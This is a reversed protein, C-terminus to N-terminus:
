GLHRRRHVFAKAAGWTIALEVLDPDLDAFTAPTLGYDDDPFRQRDFDDRDVPAVGAAHLLVTPWRVARRVLALPTTTQEDVDAAVLAHLAPGITAAAEDGAARAARPDVAGGGVERVVREVWGPIAAVAADALARGHAALTAEDTADPTPDNTNDDVAAM